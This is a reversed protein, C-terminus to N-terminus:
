IKYPFLSAVAGIPVWATGNYVKILDTATDYYIQGKVPNQPATGLLQIVANILENKNLNLSTLFDM